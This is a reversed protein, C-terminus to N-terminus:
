RATQIVEYREGGITLTATRAAGPNPSAVFQVLGGGIGTSGATIQIWGADTTATWTCPGTVLVLIAGNGGNADFQHYPPVFSWSCASAQRVAVTHGALTFTGTRAPGLHAAVAFGLQAPGTGTTSAIVIWDAGSAATWPCGAATAISVAGNGGTAAVDQSTPSISYTCGSAQSVRVIHGGISIAGDRAPGTNAAVSFGVQGTGTGGGGEPIGIWATATTASWICGSGATVQVAGATANAAVNVTSPTVSVSCGSAQSVTIIQGAVEVSASRSPGTNAAVAIRTEGPGNGAHGAAIAIWSVSSSAM